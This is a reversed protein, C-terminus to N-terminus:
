HCFLNGALIYNCAKRDNERMSKWVRERDTDVERSCNIKGEGREHGDESVRM